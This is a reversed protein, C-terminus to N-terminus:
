QFREAIGPDSNWGDDNNPDFILRRSEAWEEVWPCKITYSDPSIFLRLGVQNIFVYFFRLSACVSFTRGDTRSSLPRSKGSVLWDRVVQMGRCVCGEKTQTNSSPRARELTEIEAATYSRKSVLFLLERERRRRRRVFADLGRSAIRKYEIIVGRSNGTEKRTM